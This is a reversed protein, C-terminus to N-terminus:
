RKKFKFVWLSKMIKKFSDKETKRTYVRTMLGDSEIAIRVAGNHDTGWGEYKGPNEAVLSMEGSTTNLRFVDFVEPNRKNMQFLVDTDSVDELDDIITSRVKEFPTLDKQSRTTVNVAFIHFNENGGLDKSYLLTDDNKWMYNSLDRDENFTLQVPEGVPLRDESLGQVFINMRNKWPKMLSLYKGHPSVQYRGLVPNKFFDRLPIHSGTAKDAQDITVNKQACATLIVLAICALNIKKM